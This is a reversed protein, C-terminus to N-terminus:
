RQRRGGEGHRRDDGAREGRRRVGARAPGVRRRGRAPRRPRLRRLRVSRRPQRRHRPEGAADLADDDLHPAVRPRQRAPRLKGKVMGPNAFPFEVFVSVDDRDRYELEADALATQNATSWHVPKLRKYVLGHGVFRAFVELAAAEYAPSMTLYPDHWDGLIGLRQFQESQVGVFKEAYDRCKRRVEVTPMERMKPGLDQAIKHEIPLGHCDWGPVYPTRHGQMTRFRLVVDKLVKNVVHGLHIDGNAFPPGDHLTFPPDDKHREQVRDYLKSARWKELRAPENQVLAAKMPFDTRPLNLTEKYSPKDATPPM